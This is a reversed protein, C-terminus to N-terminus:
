RNFAVKVQAFQDQDGDSLVNRFVQIESLNSVLQSSQPLTSAAVSFTAADLALRIEEM